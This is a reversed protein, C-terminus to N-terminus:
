RQHVYRGPAPELPPHSPSGVQDPAPVRAGSREGLWTAWHEWWSGRNERAGKLWDEPAAREPGDSHFMAKQSGPPNVLSQIHGSSSLVFWTRGGLLQTTAYCAKWPTIHDTVGAVVYADCRVEGLDIPTGLVEMGGPRVLRNDMFLELFGAHLAAPLRTTDSNWFLVDFAPPDYGLLYNNVWYNWVLDNPRLWAFIRAMERGDLVGTRRSRRVAADVTRPSAFMSLVSPTRTDLVTVAFTMANVVPDGAAALHGLLLASTVGGSCVGLVNCTPSGTVQCAVAFAQRASALYQDLGADRQAATPNRWSMAFFPVGRAVTYEILSRGPALDMVYYKNIQPPVMVLPRAFVTRTSPTYQIVECLEDRHVVAGPTAAVNEGVRFPRSDVQSPMGGNGQIDHALNRAGRLLSLGGTDYARKIAAPNGWPTNTPALADDLLTVAFHARQASDPGMQAVDVLRHLASDWNLYAQMLRHYVPHETWAADTFRRDGRAPGVESRGAVIRGLEAVSGATVSLAQVPRSPLRAAARALAEMLARRDIGLFPNAGLISDAASRSVEDESVEPPRRRQERAPRRGPRARAGAASM